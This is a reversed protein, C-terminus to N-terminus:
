LFQSYCGVKFSVKETARSKNEAKQFALADDSLCTLVVRGGPILLHYLEWVSAMVESHDLFPFCRLM